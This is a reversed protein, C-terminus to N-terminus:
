CDNRKSTSIKKNDILTIGKKLEKPTQKKKIMETLEEFNKKM